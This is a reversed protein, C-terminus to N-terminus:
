ELRDVTQPPAPLHCDTMTQLYFGWVGSDQEEQQVQVWEGEYEVACM